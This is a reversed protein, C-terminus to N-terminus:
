ITSIKPDRYRKVVLDMKVKKRTQVSMQTTSM